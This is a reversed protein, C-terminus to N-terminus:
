LAAIRELFIEVLRAKYPKSVYELLDALEARLAAEARMKAYGEPDLLQAIREQAAAKRAAAELVDVDAKEDSEARLRAVEEAEASATREAEVRAHWNPVGIMSYHYGDGFSAAHRSVEETSFGEEGPMYSLGDDFQEIEAVNDSNLIQWLAM